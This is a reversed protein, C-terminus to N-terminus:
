VATHIESAENPIKRFETVINSGKVSDIPVNEFFQSDAQPTNVVSLSSPLHHVQHRPSARCLKYLKVLRDLTGDWLHDHIRGSAASFLIFLIRASKRCVTSVTM